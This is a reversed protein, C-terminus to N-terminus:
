CKLDVQAEILKDVLQSILYKGVVLYQCSPPLRMKM